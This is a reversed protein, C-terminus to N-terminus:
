EAFGYLLLEFHLILSKVDKVIAYFICYLKFFSFNRWIVHLFWPHMFWPNKQLSFISEAISTYHIKELRTSGRIVALNSYLSFHLVFKLLVLLFYAWQKCISFFVCECLHFLYLVCAHSIQHTLKRSILMPLSHGTLFGFCFIIMLLASLRMFINELSPSQFPSWM